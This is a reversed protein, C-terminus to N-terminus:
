TEANDQAAELQASLNENRATLEAHTLMPGRLEVNEM